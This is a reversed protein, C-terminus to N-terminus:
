YMKPRLVVFDSIPKDNAEDKFKGIVKNNGADFLPSQKDFSGFYFHDRDTFLEKYIDATDVCYLLSYTDTFLMKTAPFKMRFYDYDFRYM